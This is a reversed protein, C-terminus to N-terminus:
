SRIYNKPVTLFAEFEKSQIKEILFKQRDRKGKINLRDAENMIDDYVILPVSAIKTMHDQTNKSMKFNTREKHAQKVFDSVDQSHTILLGDGHTKYTKVAGGDKISLNVSEDFFAREIDSQTVPQVPVM